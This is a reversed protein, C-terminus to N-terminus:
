GENIIRRVTVIRSDAPIPGVKVRGGSELAQVWTTSNVAIGVHNIVGDRNTDMFILDGRRIPGNRFDVPAGQGAQAASYHILPVGVQAYAALTLGSCDFSGPGRTFFRYPKGVQALAYNVAQDIRSVRAGAPLRVQMGPVILSSANLDNVALLDRLSVGHRGAIAGLTDGSVVTYTRGSPTASSASTGPPTTPAASGGPVALRQGPHIVSNMTLNNASLVTALSVGHRAAILSLADGPRVTYSSTTGGSGGPSGGASGPITLRQGPHIISTVTLGNASLLAGLTVGHEAAIRGLYDGPRVTYAASSTGATGGASSGPISLRQGPHIISDLALGNARLLEALSVDHRRAVQFLSDGARVVYTDAASTSAAPLALAAVSVATAVVLRSLRTMHVEDAAGSAIWLFKQTQGAHAADLDIKATGEMPFDIAAARGRIAVMETSAIQM